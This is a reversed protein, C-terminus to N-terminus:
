FDWMPVYGLSIQYFKAAEDDSPDTWMLCIRAGYKELRSVPSHIQRMPWLKYELGPSYPNMLIKWENEKKGLKKSESYHLDSFIFASIKSQISFLTIGRNFVWIM